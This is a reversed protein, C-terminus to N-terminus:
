TIKLVFNLGGGFQGEGWEVEGVITGDHGNGSADKVTDGKGEDFLWIAVVESSAPKPVTLICVSCMVLLSFMIISTKVLKM